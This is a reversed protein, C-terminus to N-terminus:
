SPEITYKRFKQIISFTQLYSFLVFGIKNSIFIKIMINSNLIKCINYQSRKKKKKQADM